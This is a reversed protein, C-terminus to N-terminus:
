DPLDIEGDIMKWAESSPITKARGSDIDDIRSQIEASWADRIDSPEDVGQGDLSALIANAVVARDAPALELASAILQQTSESVFFEPMHAIVVVVMTDLCRQRTSSRSQVITKIFDRTAQDLTSWLWLLERLTSDKWLAESEAEGLGVAPTCAEAARLDAVGSASLRQLDRQLEAKLSRV